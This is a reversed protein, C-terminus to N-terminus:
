GAFFVPFNRRLGFPLDTSGGKCLATTGHGGVWERFTTCEWKEGVRSVARDSTQGAEQDCGLNTMDATLCLAWFLVDHKMLQRSRTVPLGLFSPVLEGLTAKGGVTLTLAKHPLCQWM